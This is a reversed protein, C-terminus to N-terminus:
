SRGAARLAEDRSQYFSMPSRFDASGLKKLEDRSADTLSGRIADRVICGSQSAIRNPLDDDGVVGLVVIQPAKEQPKSMYAFSMKYFPTSLSSLDIVKPCSLVAFTAEGNAFQTFKTIKKKDIFYGTVPQRKAAVFLNGSFLEFNAFTRSATPLVFGKLHLLHKLYWSSIPALDPAANWWNGDVVLADIPELYAEIDVKAENAEVLDDFASWVYRGGGTYWTGASSIGTVANRGVITMAAGRSIELLDLGPTWGFGLGMSTPVQVLALVVIAVAVGTQVMPRFTESFLYAPVKIALLIIGAFYITMEPMLYGTYGVQKGQSYFLVFLPLWAGAIALARVDRWLALLPVGIAVAPIKWDLVPATLISILWRIWTDFDIRRALAAYSEMHRQFANIPGGSGQVGQVMAVIDSFQPIVFLMLFPVGVLLGGAAIAAFPRATGNIRWGHDRLLVLCFVVVGALAAIGWYHMSAAAVSLATGFFLRWLSWNRNRASQLAVLGSFWLYTVMLDPRITYFEGWIFTALFVALLLAVASGFSFGGTYLLGVILIILVFIPVASAKFVSLGAKMLLATLVYHPPPHVTMFDFQGHMPYIIKGTAAFMYVPNYLGVEDFVIARYMHFCYAYSLICIVTAAVLFVAREM